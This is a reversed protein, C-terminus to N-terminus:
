RIVNRDPAGGAQFSLHVHRTEEVLETMEARAPTEDHNGDPECEDDADDHGRLSDPESVVSLTVSGFVPLWSALSRSLPRKGLWAYPEFGSTTAVSVPFSVSEFYEFAIADDTLM